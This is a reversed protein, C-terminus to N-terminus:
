PLEERVRMFTFEFFGIVVPALSVYRRENHQIDVVLGRAAMTDIRASLEPLPIGTQRSLRRLSTFKTPIQRALDAEEPSFLLKLIQTLVPSDPAGTVNRDLRQQLLRYTRPTNVIHGM